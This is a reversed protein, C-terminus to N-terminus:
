PVSAAFEAAFASCDDTGFTVPCGALGAVVPNSQHHYGVLFAAMDQSDIVGFPAALDAPGVPSGTSAMVSSSTGGLAGFAGALLGSD